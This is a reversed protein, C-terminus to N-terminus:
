FCWEGRGGGRFGWSVEEEIGIVMSNLPICVDAHV